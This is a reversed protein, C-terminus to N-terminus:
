MPKKTEPTLTSLLDTWEEADSLAGITTKEVISDSDATNVKLGRLFYSNQEEKSKELQAALKKIKALSPHDLLSETNKERQEENLALLLPSEAILTANITRQIHEPLSEMVDSLDEAHSALAEAIFIPAKGRLALTIADAPRCHLPFVGSPSEIIAEAFYFGEEEAILSVSQLKGHLINVAELTFDHILSRKLVEEERHFKKQEASEEQASPFISTTYEGDEGFGHLAKSVTFAEIPDVPLCLLKQSGLPYLLLLPAHTKSHISVGVVILTVM